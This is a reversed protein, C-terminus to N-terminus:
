EMGSWRLLSYPMRVGRLWRQVGGGVEGNSPQFGSLQDGFGPRRDCRPTSRNAITAQHGCHMSRSGGPRHEFSEATRQRAVAVAHHPRGAAFYLVGHLLGHQAGVLVQIPVGPCPPATWTPARLRWWHTGRGAARRAGGHSATPGPVRRWPRPAPCAAAASAIPPASPPNAAAARRRGPRARPAGRTWGARRRLADRGDKSVRAGAGEGVETDVQTADLQAGGVRGEAEASAADDLQGDPLNQQGHGGAPGEWMPADDAGVM